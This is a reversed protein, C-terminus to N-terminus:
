GKQADRIEQETPPRMVRYKVGRATKQIGAVAKGKKQLMLMYKLIRSQKKRARRKTRLTKQWSPRSM